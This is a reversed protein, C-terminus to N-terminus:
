IKLEFSYENFCFFEFIYFYLYIRKEIKKINIYNNIINKLNNNRIIKYDM